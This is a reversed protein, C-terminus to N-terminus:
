SKIPPSLHLNGPKRWFEKFCHNEIPSPVPIQIETRPNVAPYCIHNLFTDEINWGLKHISFLYTEKSIFLSLEFINPRHLICLFYLRHETYWHNEPHSPNILIEPFHSFSNRNILLPCLNIFFLKLLVAKSVLIRFDSLWEMKSAWCGAYHRVCLLHKIYNNTSHILLEFKNWLHYKPYQFLLQWHEM